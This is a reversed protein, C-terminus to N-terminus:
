IQIDGCMSVLCLCNKFLSDVERVKNSTMNQIAAIKIRYEESLNSEQFENSEVVGSNINEVLEEAYVKLLRNLYAQVLEFNQNSSIELVLYDLFLNVYNIKDLPHLLKDISRIEMDLFEPSLSNLFTTINKTTIKKEFLKTLLSKLLLSNSTFAEKTDKNDKSNKNKYNTYNKMILDFESVNKTSEKASM